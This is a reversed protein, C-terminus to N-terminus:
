INEEIWSLLSDKQVLGIKDAVKKGDKFLILTPISRVMYESATNPNKDVNVKVIKFKGEGEKQVEELIPLMMKCPGCWEAWFDVITPIDSSIIDEKFSADTSEHIM